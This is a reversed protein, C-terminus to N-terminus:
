TGEFVVATEGGGMGQLEAARRDIPSVRLTALIVLARQQVVILATVKSDLAAIDSRKLKLCEDM